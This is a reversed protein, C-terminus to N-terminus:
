FNFYRKANNYCIDEVMGCVREMEGYPILGAELDKGILRCLVRRFYDHRPYSVFSRSDTLMGVFRSLLGQLSLANMQDEMGTIHDNFWWGSGMQIKGPVSGDQFNAIMAAVMMNDVPNLNYLISKALCGEEELRSMFRSISVASSFDGITDFGMDPGLLRFARSNVNRLAGFHFQQVWDKEANLRALELFIATQLQATEEGSLTLGKGYVKNFLESARAESCDAYPFECVGHDALRCGQEAFYDQRKRLAAYLENLTSIEVDSVRSLQEVYGRYTLPNNVAMAKDPRWTPLVKIEFDSNSIARHHDLSDIPDDTTCVSEVRYHSMLGRATLQGNSLIENCRDYISRASAPSLLDTIGFATKLELHTWHYLPNRLTYPVTEAWKQFKEWDDADGTIYYEDVGNARMARWKYHDGSLWLDTISKFRYDEAILKPNLHCHYDIIPMLAAHEHYLLQASESDLLFHDDPFCRSLSDEKLSDEKLSSENWVIDKSKNM